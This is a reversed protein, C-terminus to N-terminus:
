EEFLQFLVGGSDRPHVFTHRRWGEILGGHAEIGERRLGAIAGAVSEVECCIHHMGARRQELFRAVFSDNRFPAMIEFQLDSGPISMVCGDYGLTEDRWRGREEMGFVRRQWETQRELDNAAMSVHDVRKVGAAGGTTSRDVAEHRRYPQFLQWLIGGSDKPHIYTIKWAGDDSIGGFPQIRLAEMQRAADDIDPVEMTIHHLGPGNADLFRQVFSDGGVPSIVEFEMEIGPPQSISGDFDAEGAPFGYLFRFGLLRELLKAQPEWQPAAMSIHDLHKVVIM